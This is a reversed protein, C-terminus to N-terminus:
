ATSPRENTLRQWARLYKQLRALDDPTIEAMRRLDMNDELDAVKVARAIPDSASREVFHGYDEGEQKTVCKLAEIVQESFGERELDKFTWKTDEVVDHLIAAIKAAESSVRAMVRLPHLIYPAGYRDQQNRHAETAIAIARELLKSSKMRSCM